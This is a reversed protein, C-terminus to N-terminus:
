RQLDIKSNYSLTATKISIMYLGNNFVSLDIPSVGKGETLTLTATYVQRGTIDTIVVSAKEITAENWMINLRGSTPNPFATVSSVSSLNKVSEAGPTITKSTTHQTFAAAGYTPTGSTLTISTYPTTIYNLSDPFVTYIGVPLNSLTYNGAADTYAMQAVSGTSNLAVMHLGVVPISGSTGKNAGTLVSGSIFGPGSTTTGTLMTINENIDATGSVHNIVDADHWYFFSGHYTPIYGTTTGTTDPTAAKVRFSDSALGVFEYDVSTGSCYLTTSDIAELLSTGPNYTILWVKVEGYYAGSFLVSGSIGDLPSVTVVQTASATGGCGTVTYSITTTGSSVATVVGTTSGITAIASNSSSWTGSPAGDALTITTGGIYAVSPGSISGTSTTSSVTILATTFGAGCVGAVTYTIYATGAAIGTVLGTTSGVSAASPNSSSWTGGPTADSLAVSSGVCIASGGSTDLGAVTTTNVTLSESASCGPGVNYYINVVGAYLGTAVGTAPNVSIGGDGSWTGGPTADSFTATSGACFSTPGGTIGAPVATVTFVATIIAGLTDTYTITATGASIGTVMAAAGSDILGGTGSTIGASGVTAVAIDSSSWTGGYSGYVSVLSSDGVCTGLTGTIPGMGYASFTFAFFVVILTIFHKM